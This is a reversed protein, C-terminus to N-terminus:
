EVSIPVSISESNSSINLQGKGLLSVSRVYISTSGGQLSVTTPGYIQLPGSCSLNIAKSTYICVNDNEDLLKVTVKVVDYTTEEHLFPKSLKVDLHTVGSTTISKSAIVVDNKIAEFKYTSSENGWSNIYKTYINVLDNISFHHKLILMLAHYLFSPYIKKYGHRIIYRALKVLHVKDRKSFDKEEVREGLYDDVTILPHPTHKYKHKNPYFSSIYKDNIYLKVFDGNTAVITKGLLAAPKDGPSLTSAIELFPKSENQAEYIYSAYKKNRFIDTLGHYCIHDGSGFDKHTNYDAFCWAIAGSINDHKYNDDLVKAHLLLHKLRIEQNDFSKTPFMHGLYETVLYGKHDNKITLMSTLGHKTSSCSFDNYSYFDELLLSNKFNRVGTTQRYHDNQRAILGGKFYLYYDDKSENIRVGYGVVSPHNREKLVMRKIFDLFNNRWPDEEGIHQWGPVETLVLLGIEDCRSLFYESQPYHSTRVINFGMEKILDADDEQMSKPMAYGVYPYSQHRNVGVLKVKNDNLFFGNKTFLTTRCGFRILKIDTKGNNEFSVECTYLYPSEISWVKVNPLTFYINPTDIILEDKDFIRFNIKGDGCTKYKINVKGLNDAFVQVDKIYSLPLVSIYVDRYIGGFTLYDVVNGFPPINKDESSDLVIMLVNDKNKLHESINIKVPLYGSIYHGLLINNLYIDAQLMFGELNLFFTHENIDEAIDFTKRYTTKKQYSKEDIYNSDFIKITHPINITEFNNPFSNLYEQSFNDLFQWNSNLFINM